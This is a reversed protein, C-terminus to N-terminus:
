HALWAVCKLYLVKFMVVGFVVYHYTSYGGLAVLRCFSFTTKLELPTAKGQIQWQALTSQLHTKNDSEPPKLDETFACPEIRELKPKSTVERIKVPGRLKCYSLTKSLTLKESTKTSSNHSDLFREVSTILNLTKCM